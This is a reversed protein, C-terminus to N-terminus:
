LIFMECKLTHKAHQQQNSRRHPGFLNFLALPAGIHRAFFLSSLLSACSYFATYRKGTDRTVLMPLVLRLTLIFISFLLGPSLSLLAALRCVRCEVYVRASSLSLITHLTYYSYKVAVTRGFWRFCRARSSTRAGPDLLDLKPSVM